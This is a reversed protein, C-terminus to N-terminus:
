RAKLSMSTCRSLKRFRALSKPKEMCLNFIQQHQPHIAGPRALLHLFYGEGVLAM